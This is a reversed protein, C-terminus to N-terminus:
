FRSENQLKEFFLKQANEFEWLNNIDISLNSNMPFVESTEDFFQEKSIFLDHDFIYIAGNEKLVKPSHQRQEKTNCNSFLQVIGGRDSEVYYLSPRISTVFM